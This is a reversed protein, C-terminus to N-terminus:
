FEKFAPLSPEKFRTYVSYASFYPMSYHIFVVNKHHILFPFNLIQSSSTKRTSFPVAKLLESSCFVNLFYLLKSVLSVDQFSLTSLSINVQSGSYCLIISILCSILSIGLGSIFLSKRLRKRYRTYLDDLQSNETLSSSSFPSFLVKSHTLPMDKMMEFSFLSLNITMLFHCQWCKIEKERLREYFNGKM